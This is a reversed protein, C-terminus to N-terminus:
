LFGPLGFLNKATALMSTHDWQPAPGAIADYDEDAHKTPENIVSAKKVWPSILMTSSRLGTRTFDMQGGCKNGQLVGSANL